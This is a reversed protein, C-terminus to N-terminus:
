YQLFYLDTLETENKSFQNALMSSKQCIFYYYHCNAFSISSLLYGSLPITAGELSGGESSSNSVRTSDASVPLVASKGYLKKLKKNVM